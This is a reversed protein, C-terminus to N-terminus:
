VNYRVETFIGLMIDTVFLIRRMKGRIRCTAIYRGTVGSLRVNRERFHVRIVRRRMLKHGRMNLAASHRWAKWIEHNIM